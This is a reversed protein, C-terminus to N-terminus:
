GSGASPPFLGERGNAVASMPVSEIREALRLTNRARELLVPRDRPLLSGHFECSLIVIKM